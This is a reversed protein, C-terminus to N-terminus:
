ILHSNTNDNTVIEYQSKSSYNFSPITFNLIYLCTSVEIFTDVNMINCPMDAIKAALRTYEATQQITALEEPSLSNDTLRPDLPGIGEDESEGDTSPSIYM